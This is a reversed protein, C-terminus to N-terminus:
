MNNYYLAKILIDVFNLMNHFKSDYAKRFFKGFNLNKGIM